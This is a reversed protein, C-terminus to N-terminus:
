KAPNQRLVLSFSDDGLDELLLLGQGEQRAHIFPASFGAGHLYQAVAVFPRVDEKDPPADMLMASESGKKLRIYRRFSADGALPFLEAGAFPTKSLFQTIQSLREPAITPTKSM